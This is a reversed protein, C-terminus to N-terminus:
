VTGHPFDTMNAGIEIATVDYGAEIFPAIAKGTGAGIELAKKGKKLGSYKCVDEFLESPYKPRVRDYNVVMEDFHTRRHREWGTGTDTEM